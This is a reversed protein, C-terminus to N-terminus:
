RVIWNRINILFSNPGTITGLQIIMDEDANPMDQAPLLFINSDVWNTRAFVNNGINAFSYNEGNLDKKLPAVTQLARAITQPSPLKHVITLFSSMFLLCIILSVFLIFKNFKSM